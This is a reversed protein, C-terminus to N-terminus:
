SGLAPSNQDLSARLARSSAAITVACVYMVGYVAFTERLGIVGVLWGAILIGLPAASYATASFAGFVRGRLYKPTAEQMATSIIPNLPGSALGFVFTITTAFWRNPLGTMAFRSLAVIAFCIVFILFRSQGLRLRAPIYLLTGAVAGVGNAALLWGVTAADGVVTLAYVPLLVPAFAEDILNTMSLLGLMVLVARETCIFRLGERMESVFPKTPQRASTNGKPVFVLVLGASSFFTVADIYLTASPGVASVLLGAASPGLVLALRPALRFYTNAVDKTTQAREALEPLLGLRAVNGPTNFLSRFFLLMLLYPIPLMSLRDLLPVAATFLGAAFDSLVSSQRLGRRDILVGGGLGAIVLPVASAAGAWGATQASHTRALVYLPVAVMTIGNGFWTVYNAALLGVLPARPHGVAGIEKRSFSQAMRVIIAILTVSRWATAGRRSPLGASDDASCAM